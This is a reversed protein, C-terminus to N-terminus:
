FPLDDGTYAPFELPTSEEIGNNLCYEKVKEPLEELIQATHCALEFEWYKYYAHHGEITDRTFSPLNFWRQDGNQLHAIKRIIMNFCKPIKIDVYGIVKNKNAREYHIVEIM